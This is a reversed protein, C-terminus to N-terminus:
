GAPTGPGCLASIADDDAVVADYEDETLWGEDEVYFSDDAQGDADELMSDISVYSSAQGGATKVKIWVTKAAAWDPSSDWDSHVTFGDPVETLTLRSLTSGARRDAELVRQDRPAEDTVEVELTVSTIKLCDQGTWIELGGGQDIPRFGAQHRVLPDSVPDCGCLVVAGM